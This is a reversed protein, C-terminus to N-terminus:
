VRYTKHLQLQAWESVAVLRVDGSKSECYIAVATSFVWPVFLRDYDVAPIDITEEDKVVRNTSEVRANHISFESEIKAAVKAGLNPIPAEISLSTKLSFNSEMTSKIASTVEVSHMRTKHVGAPLSEADRPNTNISYVPVAFYSKARNYKVYRSTYVPDGIGDWDKKEFSITDGRALLIREPPFIYTEPIKSVPDFSEVPLEAELQPWNQIMENASEILDLLRLYDPDEEEPECWGEDVMQLAGQISFISINRTFNHGGSPLDSWGDVNYLGSAILSSVNGSWYPVDIDITIAGYSDPKKDLWTCTAEYGTATGNSACIGMAYVTEGAGISVPAKEYENDTYWWGWKLDPHSVTLERDTGNTINLRFTWAM